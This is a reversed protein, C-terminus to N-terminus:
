TLQPLLHRVWPQRNGVMYDRASPTFDYVCARGPWREGVEQCSPLVDNFWFDFVQDDDTVRELWRVCMGMLM